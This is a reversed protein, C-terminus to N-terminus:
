LIIAYSSLLKDLKLIREDIAIKYEPICNYDGLSTLHHIYYIRTNNAFREITFSLAPVGSHIVTYLSSPEDDVGVETYSSKVITYDIPIWYIDSWIELIDNFLEEAKDRNEVVTEGYYIKIDETFRLLYRKDAM